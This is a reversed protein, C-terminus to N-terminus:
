RVCHLLHSTPVVQSEAPTFARHARARARTHTPSQSWHVEKRRQWMKVIYNCWNLQIAIFCPSHDFVSTWSMSLATLTLLVTVFSIRILIFPLKGRILLLLLMCRVILNPVFLRIYTRPTRQQIFKTNMFKNLDFNAASAVALVILTRHCSTKIFLNVFNETWM